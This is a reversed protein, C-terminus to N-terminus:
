LNEGPLSYPNWNSGQERSAGPVLKDWMKGPATSQRRMMSAQTGQSLSAVNQRLMENQVTVKALKRQMQNMEATMQAQIRYLHVSFLISGCLGMVAVSQWLRITLDPQGHRITRTRM